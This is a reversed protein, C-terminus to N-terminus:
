RLWRVRLRDMTPRELRDSPPRSRQGRPHDCRCGGARDRNGTSGTVSADVRLRSSRLPMTPPLRQSRGGRRPGAPTPAIGSAVDSAAPTRPRDAFGEEGGVRSRRCRHDRDRCRVLGAIVFRGRDEEEVLAAASHHWSWARRRDSGVTRPDATAHLWVTRPTASPQISRNTSRACSPPQAIYGPTASSLSLGSYDAQRSIGLVLSQEAQRLAQALEAM